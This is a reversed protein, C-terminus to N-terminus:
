IEFLDFNLEYEYYGFKEIKIKKIVGTQLLQRIKNYVHVHSHKSNKVIESPRCPGNYHLYILIEGDCTLCRTKSYKELNRLSSLINM